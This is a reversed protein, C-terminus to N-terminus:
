AIGHIREVYAGIEGERAPTKLEPLQSWSFQSWYARLMELKADMDTTIDVPLPTLTIDPHATAFDSTEGKIAYPLDEYFLIKSGPVKAAQLSELAADRAIRHDVHQGIALPLYFNAAPFEGALSTVASRIGEAAVADREGVVATFIDAMAHGRLLAEDLDLARMPCGSLRSVLDDEARRTAQILALDNSLDTSEGTPPFRWWASKSFINVILIESPDFIAQALPDPSATEAPAPVAQTPADGAAATLASQEIFDVQKEPPGPNSRLMLGGLSLAADDPHPSLIIARIKAPESMVPAASPVQQPWLLILEGEQAAILHSRSASAAEAVEALTHSGDCFSLARRVPEALEREPLHLPKVGTDTLKHHPLLVPYLASRQYGRILRRLRTKLSSLM